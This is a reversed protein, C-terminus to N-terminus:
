FRRNKLPPPARSTFGTERIQLIKSYIVPTYLPGSCWALLFVNNRLVKVTFRFFIWNYFLGKYMHRNWNVTCYLVTYQTGKVANLYITKVASRWWRGFEIANHWYWQVYDASRCRYVVRQHDAPRFCPTCPCCACGYVTRVASFKVVSDM